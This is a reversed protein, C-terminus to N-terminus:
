HAETQAWEVGGLLDVPHQFDHCRNELVPLDLGKLGMVSPGYRFAQRQVPIEDDPKM